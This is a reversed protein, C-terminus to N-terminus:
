FPPDEDNFDAYLPNPERWNRQIFNGLVDFLNVLEEQDKFQANFIEEYQEMAKTIRNIKPYSPAEIFRAFMETLADRNTTLVEENSEPQREEDTLTEHLATLDMM